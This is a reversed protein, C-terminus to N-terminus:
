LLKRCANFGNQYDNTCNSLDYNEIKERQEKVWTSHLSSIFDDLQKDAEQFNPATFSRNELDIVGRYLSKIREIEEKNM